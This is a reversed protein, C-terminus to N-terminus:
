KMATQEHISKHIHGTSCGMEGAIKRITWGKERLGKAKRIKEPTATDKRGAGRPNGVPTEWGRGRRYAGEVAGMLEEPVGGYTIRYM